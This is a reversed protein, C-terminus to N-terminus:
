EGTYVQYDRDAHYHVIKNSQKDRYIVIKM